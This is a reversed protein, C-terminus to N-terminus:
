PTIDGFFRWFYLGESGGGTVITTNNADFALCNIRGVHGIFIQSSKPGTKEFEYDWVKLLCDDGGSIM